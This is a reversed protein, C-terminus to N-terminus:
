FIQRSLTLQVSGPAPLAPNAPTGFVANDFSFDRWFFPVFV